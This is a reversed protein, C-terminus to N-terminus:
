IQDWCNLLELSNDSATRATLIRAHPFNLPKLLAMGPVVLFFVLAKFFSLALLSLRTTLLGYQEEQSDM